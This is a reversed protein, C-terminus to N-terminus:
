VTMQCEGQTGSPPLVSVTLNNGKNSSRSSLACTHCLLPTLSLTFVPSTKVAGCITFEEM